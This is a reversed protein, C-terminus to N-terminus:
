LETTAQQQTGNKGKKVDEYLQINATLKIEEGIALGGSETIASHVLGFDKRNIIGTVEFGYKMCGYIDKESGGYEVDFVVPHTIGKITLAGALKYLQGNSRKFSWSQFAILPYRDTEFFAEKKLHADRLLQNTDISDVNISLLVDANEFTSGETVASGKFVRFSGTISSIVLHRIRFQIESHMPDIVWKRVTM